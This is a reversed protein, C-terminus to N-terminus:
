AKDGYSALPHEANPNSQQAAVPLLSCGSWCYTLQRAECASRDPICGTSGADTSSSKAMPQISTLTSASRPSPRLLQGVFRVLRRSKILAVAEQDFRYRVVGDIHEVRRADHHAPIRTRLTELAVQRLFYDALM